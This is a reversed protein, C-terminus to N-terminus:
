QTPMRQLQSRVAKPELGDVNHGDLKLDWQFPRVSMLQIRGTDRTIHYVAIVQQTPDVVTLQTPQGDGPLFHTILQSNGLQAGAGGAGPVYADARWSAAAAVTLVVAMGIWPKM